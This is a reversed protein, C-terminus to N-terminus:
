KTRSIFDLDIPRFPVNEKHIKQARYIRPTISNKPLLKDKIDDDLTANKITTALEKEINKSPDCSLKKYNRTSLHELMKREYELTNMVVITSGKDVKM